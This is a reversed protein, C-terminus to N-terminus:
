RIVTVTNNLSPDNPISDAFFEVPQWRGRGEGHIEITVHNDVGQAGLSEPLSRGGGGFLDRSRNGCMRCGWLTVNVTNNNVRNPLLTRYVDGGLVSLGPFLLLKISKNTKANKEGEM